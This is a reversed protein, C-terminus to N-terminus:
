RTADAWGKFQYWKRHFPSTIWSLPVPKGEARLQEIRAQLAKRQEYLPVLGPQERLSRQIEDETRETMERCAEEATLRDNMYKDSTQLQIRSSVADLVFPSFEPAIAITMAAEAFPEHCGWENPYKPPRKYAETETFKPSPPLADADNVINMNYDESALYALFLRALDRHKGGRYVASARTFASANPMEYYPLESVALKLPPNGAAIREESFRRLQILAYRGCNLLAYNGANFLQFSAGGYGGETAFNSLEETTPMLHDVYTWQRRKAYAQVVRPDDLTCASQTENFVGAGLSHFLVTVDVTPAFFFRRRGGAANARSVAERGLREFEDVTWRRPPPPLGLREFVELNIWYLDATVNCPFSYQRGNSTLEPEMAAYTQAPDFGLERGSDTVDDLIGVAERFRMSAGGTHDIIDGCVGSVGQVVVKEPAVNVTDVRVEFEPHGHKRLWKRFTRIQEVRAPNADTVWYLIPVDSRSDPLSRVTVFTAAALAALVIAFLTKM